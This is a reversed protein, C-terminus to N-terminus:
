YGRKRRAVEGAEMSRKFGEYQERERYRGVFTPLINNWGLDRYTAYIDVEHMDWEPHNQAAPSAAFDDTGQSLHSGTLNQFVHIFEELAVPLIIMALQPDNGATRFNLPTTGVAVDHIVVKRADRFHMSKAVETVIQTNLQEQSLGTPNIILTPIDVRYGLFRLARPDVLRNYAAAWNQNNIDNITDEILQSLRVVHAPYRPAQYRRLRAIPNRQVVQGSSSDQSTLANTHQAKNRTFTSGGMLKAKHGKQDAEKELVPDSNVPMGGNIEETAKVRGQKQQVVHWAEHPLHREQGPALHIESGQAYANAGVSAPRSSNYHVKVDGMNYGSLAEVGSRLEEPLGNDNPRQRSSQKTPLGLVRQVPAQDIAGVGYEPPTLSEGTHSSISQHIPAKRTRTKQPM